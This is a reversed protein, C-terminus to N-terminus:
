NEYVQLKIVDYVNMSDVEALDRAYAHADRMNSFLATGVNWDYKDTSADDAEIFIIAWVSNVKRM